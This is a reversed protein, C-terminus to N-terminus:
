QAGGLLARLTEIVKLDAKDQKDLDERTGIWERSHMLAQRIVQLQKDTVKITNM